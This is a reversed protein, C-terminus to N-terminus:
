ALFIIQRLRSQTLYSFCRGIIGYVLHKKKTERLEPGGFAGLKDQKLTGENWNMQAEPNVNDLRVVVLGLILLKGQARVSQESWKRDQARSQRHM